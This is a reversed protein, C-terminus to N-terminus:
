GDQTDAKSKRKGGCGTHTQGRAKRWKVSLVDGMSQLTMTTANGSSDRLGKTSSPTFHTRSIRVDECDMVISIYAM